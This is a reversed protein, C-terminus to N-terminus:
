TEEPHAARNEAAQKRLFRRYYSLIISTAPLAIIM